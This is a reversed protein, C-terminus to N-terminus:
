EWKGKMFVIELVECILVAAHRSDQGIVEGNLRVAVEVGIAFGFELKRTVSIVLDELKVRGNGDLGDGAFAVADWVSRGSVRATNEVRANRAAITKNEIRPALSVATNSM